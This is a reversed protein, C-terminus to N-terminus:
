DVPFYQDLWDHVLNIVRPNNEGFMFHDVGSLLHLDTTPKSREYLGLSETAPTVKDDAAHLLLLPRPAIDGVVDAPRFAMTTIATDVPFKFISQKDINHRLHEPVPVIDFRHVMLPEGTENRHKQGRELMDNFKKWAEETPHQQFAKKAGDSWGGQSIVAAARQDVGATYIAVAAGYSTGSLAIRDQRM